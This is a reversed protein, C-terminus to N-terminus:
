HSIIKLGNKIRECAEEKGLLETMPFLDVGISQGSLLIRFLQLVEGPKLNNKATTEKFINEIESSTFNNLGSLNNELQHFFEAYHAKWKKQIAQEDYQTPAEFLYKGKEIMEHEFQVRPKLLQIHRGLFSGSIRKDDDSFGFEQKLSIRLRATLETDPKKQLWQENFWKAKEPDFRAGAKHVHEFSFSQILGEMSFIEQETGPNWGLLALMNIFAEPYYGKERYGSSIEGTMPDKWELPFVPFGGKDGDRKSLKGKGDPKLILPLHAYQPMKSEWELFKYILIHAPASPLWEEGRIAHTIEMLVDDVIHALHYTPMGDSKLLVKDDVLNSHVTVGGRILDTFSIEQNAPVKLRIVYPENASIKKETEDPSHSLSNNLSMRSSSDYSFTKKETEAKKRIADLEEAKDFAYYAHGSQILQEAYKRYIEKRESQRYPFFKGGASVGEDIKIGCWSLSDIIYQEAGAVFRNQDTDEIRLLFDGEHKKAFLYSYLATRVGGIHLPGTPSPAFRTRIKM